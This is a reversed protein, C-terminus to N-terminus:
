RFERAQMVIIELLVLTMNGAAISFITGAIMLLVEVWTALGLISLLTAKSDPFDYQHLIEQRYKEPLKALRKEFDVTKEESKTTSHESINEKTSAEHIM